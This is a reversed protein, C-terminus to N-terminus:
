TSDDVYDAFDEVSAAGNRAKVIRVEANRNRSTAHWIALNSPYDLDDMVVNQGPGDFMSAAVLNTGDSTNTTLAIETPRANVLRGISARVEDMVGLWDEVRGATGLTRRELFDLAARRVPAALPAVYATDLYVRESTVPFDDRVSAIM